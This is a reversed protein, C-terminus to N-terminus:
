FMGSPRRGGPNGGGGGPYQGRGMNPTQPQKDKSGKEGGTGGGPFINLKYIFHVMFYSNIANTWSDSRQMANIVRSVNSQQRLIDYAQLSITAARKKLFGYSIQANWLLEDTNMSAESYGRRSNMRIDTSISLGFDFNFNANAGYAFNWTDMNNYQQLTSRSHQYNLSGLLGVDFWSARYSANLNEGVGVTRTTSKERAYTAFIQDYDAKARFMAPLPRPTSSNFSSVYGVANNYSLNTSTSINFLKKEGLGTNYMFNGRASWNGNINEPRTYRVGTSEDYVMLNSISGRTQTMDVGAVLGQQREPNYGHYFVRFNNNWSPKLGPNGMSVNLPDSDDVVDLLNTMSPQSSSGRYRIDLNSTKSFKYRFRLQPSANFVNRVLITDINQGPREYAMKTREPNLDVGLNLRIASTNYRIGVNASHNYYRYTAYQSNNLDRVMALADAETPLTGIVPYSGPAGFSAYQPYAALADGYALSDLNFRSRDSDSYKFSYTYNVEAFLQRTIPETYGVRINYDYNESPTTSYQNLFRGPSGNGYNINSISFSNSKSQSYNGRARLSINRGKSNLRRVINLNLGANHSHNDGLSLRETSNVMIAALLPNVTPAFISDLPSEMGEIGYPDDNFTVARSNGSNKGASYSYSPRVMITTMTDPSWRLRANVNVRTSSNGSISHSNSFSNARGANLFTETASTRILDTSTHSYLASGGLELRGAEKKSKGNEWNFNLGANKTATLGQGGGGFGRPGGFGRDGVNNMAGYATVSTRDTFRTAFVKGSYRKETGYALDLNTVWSENLQRKTMIDLVTSEEGDDIGTMEAYDSQKEYAKIRNVMEVPLNKMAVDKDGKFFDKGNVLLEKVEKGNWTIKGDDSVEVGPLQKVLAELSSGEPTRYASANFMTTDEKQEVRAAVGTVTATRLTNDTSKMFIVGVDCLTDKAQVKVNKVIPTYGVYSLKLLYEGPQPVNIKFQGQNDTTSGRVVTSDTRLLVAAAFEIPSKSQANKAVGILQVQAVSSLSMALLTLVFFSQKIFKM